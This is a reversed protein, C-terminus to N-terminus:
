GTIQTWGSSQSGHLYAYLKPSSGYSFYLGGQYIDSTGKFLIALGYSQPPDALKVTKSDNNTFVAVSNARMNTLVTETLVTGTAATFMDELGKYVYLAGEPIGVPISPAILPYVSTNGDTTKLQITNAAPNSPTFGLIDLAVKAAAKSTAGTGGHKIDIIGSLPHSTLDAIPTISDINIGDLMVRYLPFDVEIDGDFISGEAYEPDTPNASATGEIVIFDVSEVDTEVDKEYHAVILDHRKMGVSGNSITLDIYTSPEIRSHRGHTIIDGDYLRVLNNSVIEARLKEGVGLIYAGTGFIGANLSGDDASTVHPTNNRSGTILYNAM